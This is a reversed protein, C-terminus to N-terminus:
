YLLQARCIIKTLVRNERIRRVARATRQRRRLYHWFTKNFMIKTNEIGFLGHQHTQKM